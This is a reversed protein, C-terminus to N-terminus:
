ILWKSYLMVLTSIQITGITSILFPIRKYEGTLLIPLANKDYRKLDVM